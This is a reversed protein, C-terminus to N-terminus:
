DDYGWECVTVGDPLEAVLAPDGSFMDGWIM